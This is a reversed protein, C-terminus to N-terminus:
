YNRRACSIDAEPALDMSGFTVIVYSLAFELACCGFTILATLGISLCTSCTHILEHVPGCIRGKVGPSLEWIESRPINLRCSVGFHVKSAVKLMFDNGIWEEKFCFFSIQSRLDGSDNM